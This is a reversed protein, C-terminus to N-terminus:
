VTEKKRLKYFRTAIVYLGVVVIAGIFFMTFLGWTFNWDQFFVALSGLVFTGLVLQAATFFFSACKKRMEIEMEEQKKEFEEINTM